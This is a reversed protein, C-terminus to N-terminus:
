QKNWKTEDVKMYVPKQIFISDNLIWKEILIKNNTVPTLYYNSSAYIGTSKEFYEM